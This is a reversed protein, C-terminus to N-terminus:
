KNRPTDEKPKEYRHENIAKDVAIKWMKKGPFKYGKAVLIEAIKM